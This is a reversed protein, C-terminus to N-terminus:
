RPSTATEAQPAISAGTSFTSSTTPRLSAPLRSLRFWRYGWWHPEFHTTTVPVTTIPATAASAQTRPRDANRERLAIFRILDESIGQQKFIVLAPASADLRGPSSQILEAIFQEDFGAKALTVVSENTVVHRSKPILPPASEQAFASLAFLLFLTRM